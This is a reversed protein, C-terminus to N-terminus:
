INNKLKCPCDYEFFGLYYCRPWFYVPFIDVLHPVNLLNTEGVYGTEQLYLSGSIRVKKRHFKRAEKEQIKEKLLVLTKDKLQINVKLPSTNQILYVGRIVVRKNAHKKLDAMTEVCAKPPPYHHINGIGYIFLKNCTTFILLFLSLIFTNQFKM